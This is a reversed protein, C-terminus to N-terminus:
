GILSRRTPAAATERLGTSGGGATPPRTLGPAEATIIPLVLGVTAATDEAFRNIKGSDHLTTLVGKLALLDAGPLKVRLADVLATERNANVFGTVKVELEDALTARPKLTTVENKFADRERLAQALATQTDVTTKAVTQSESLLRANDAQLAELTTRLTGAAARETAYTAAEAELATVKAQLPAPDPRQSVLARLNANEAVLAALAPDPTPTIADSM